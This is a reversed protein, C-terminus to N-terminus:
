NNKVWDNILNYALKLPGQALKRHRRMFNSYIVEWTKIIHHPIKVQSEVAFHFDGFDVPKPNKKARKKKPEEYTIKM